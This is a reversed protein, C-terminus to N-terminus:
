KKKKNKKKDDEERVLQEYMEDAKRQREKLEANLRDKEDQTIEKEESAEDEEEEEADVVGDKLNEFSNLQSIQDELKEFIAKVRPDKARSGALKRYHSIIIRFQRSVDPDVKATDKAVDLIFNEMIISSTKTEILDKYYKGFNNKLLHVSKIIKNFAKDCRPIQKRVESINNMVVEVFRDIDIDPSAHTKYLNYTLNFLKCLVVMIYEIMKEEKASELSSLIFKIDLKSFPFPLVPGPSTTFPRINYRPSSKASSASASASSASASSDDTTELPLADKFHKYYPALYDCIGIFDNMLACKKIFEYQESFLSHDKENILNINWVINSFDMYFLDAHTKRANGIYANFEAKESQFVSNGFLPSSAFSEFLDIVSSMINKMSLYKPYCIEMNVKGSAGLMQNFMDVMEKDNVTKIKAAM